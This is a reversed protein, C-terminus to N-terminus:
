TENSDGRNAKSKQRKLQRYQGPTMGEIQKFKRMFNAVDVYGSHLVIDKIAEDSIELQQKVYAIRLKTIYSSFSEGTEDKFIKSAYTYSLGFEEALTNLSISNDRFHKQVYEILSMKTAFRNQNKQEEMKQALYVIENEIAQCIEAPDELVSMKSIEHAKMPMKLSAAIKVMMNILDYQLCKQIILSPAVRHIKDFVDRMVQIATETSGSRISQEILAREVYPYAFGEEQPLNNEFLFFNDRDTVMRESISVIAEVYATDIKFPTDYVEGCGVPFEKKVVRKVVEAVDAELALRDVGPERLNAIVVMQNDELRYFAFLQMEGSDEAALLQIIRHSDQAPLENKELSCVVVAFYGFAFELQACMLYYSLSRQDGDRITGKVLRNLVMQRIIMNRDNLREETHRHEEQIREEYQGVGKAITAAAIIGLILLAAALMSLSLLDAKGYEFLEHVPILTIYNINQVASVNRVVLYDRGAVTQRSIGIMATKVLEVLEEEGVATGGAYLTQNMGDLLYLEAQTEPFYKQMLDVFYEKQILFAVSGAPDSSMLPIPSLVLCGYLQSNKYLTGAPLLQTQRAQNMAKFFGVHDLAGDYYESQEFQSYPMSEGEMYVRLSDRELFLMRVQDPLNQAYGEMAKIKETESLEDWELVPDSGSMHLAINELSSYLLDFENCLQKQVGGLYDMAGKDNSRMTSYLFLCSFCVVPVVFAVAYQVFKKKMIASM